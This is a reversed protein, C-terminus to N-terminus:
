EGLLELLWGRAPFDHEVSTALPEGRLDELYSRARLVCGAGRAAEVMAVLDSRSAFATFPELFADRVRLVRPDDLECGAHWAVSNLTCLMTGIPSGVSADGWDIVRAGAVDDRWCVNGSHLDDHQVSEPVDSGGLTACWSELQPRLAQLRRTQEVSLGGQTVPLGALEDLIADFLGPITAPRGDPVGAALMDPSRGALALQAAAYRPLVQEWSDWLEEPPAWTRMVPGADPTLFWGRATDVGLLEPALGPAHAALLGLLPGEFATAACSAKFWVDDGPGAYRIATSWSRVHPQEVLGLAPRGTVSRVWATVEERFAESGWWPVRSTSGYYAPATVHSM